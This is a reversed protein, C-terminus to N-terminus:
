LRELLETREGRETGSLSRWSEPSSVVMRVALAVREALVLFFFAIGKTILSSADGMVTGGGSAVGDFLGEGGAVGMATEGEGSAVGM